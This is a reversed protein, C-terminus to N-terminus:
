FVLLSVVWPTYHNMSAAMNGQFLQMPTDRQAHLEALIHNAEIEIEAMSACKAPGKNITSM